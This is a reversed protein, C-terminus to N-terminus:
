NSAVLDKSLTLRPLPILHALPGLGPRPSSPCRANIVSLFVVAEDLSVLAPGHYLWGRGLFAGCGGVDGHVRPAGQAVASAHCEVVLLPGASRWPSANIKGVM